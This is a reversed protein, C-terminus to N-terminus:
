TAPAAAAPHRVLHMVLSERSSAIQYCRAVRHVTEMRGPVNTRLSPGEGPSFEESLLYPFLLVPEDDVRARWVIGKTPICLLYM